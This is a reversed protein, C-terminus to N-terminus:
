EKEDEKAADEAPAGAPSAAPTPALRAAAAAQMKAREAAEMAELEADAAMRDERAKQATGKGELIANAIQSTILRVSRVSDDNGPIPYQVLDPDCNTDVIAVVPTGLRNAEHIAIEEKGIDVVFLAAPLRTMEKIGGLYKNLRAVEHQVGLAERKTQVPLEGKAIQDELLILREIRSQITQFNTMLGGLWRQNIYYADARKAEQEIAAQAQKKTGVM